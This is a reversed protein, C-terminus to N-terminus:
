VEQRDGGFGLRSRRRRGAAAAALVSSAAMTICGMESRRKEPTNGIRLDRKSVPFAHRRRRQKHKTCDPLFFVRSGLSSFTVSPGVTRSPSYTKPTACMKADNLSVKM